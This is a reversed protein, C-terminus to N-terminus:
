LAGARPLLRLFAPSYYFSAHSRLLRPRGRAGGRVRALEQVDHQQFADAGGWGFSRTLATPTIARASSLQLQGFLLQLQYPICDSLAAADGDDAAPARWAFLVRRLEPTMFLTQLLSNMYCTAGQNALGTYVRAPRATVASAAGAGGAASGAGAGAASSALEDADESVADLRAPAGDCSSPPHRHRLM